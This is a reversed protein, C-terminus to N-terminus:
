VPSHSRHIQEVSIYKQSMGPLHLNCCNAFILVGCQGCLFGSAREPCQICLLWHLTSQSYNSCSSDTENNCLPLAVHMLETLLSRILSQTPIVALWHAPTMSRVRAILGGTLPPTPWVSFQSLCNCMVKNLLHMVVLLSCNAPGKLKNKSFM